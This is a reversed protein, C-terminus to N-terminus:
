KSFSQKHKKKKFKQGKIKSSIYFIYSSKSYTHVQAEIKIAKNLFFSPKICFNFFFVERDSEAFGMFFMLM